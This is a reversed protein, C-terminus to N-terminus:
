FTLDKEWAQLAADESQGMKELYHLAVAMGQPTDINIGHFKLEDLFAEMAVLAAADAERTHRRRAAFQRRHEVVDLVCRKLIQTNISM